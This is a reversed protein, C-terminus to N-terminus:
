LNWAACLVEAIDDTKQTPAKHAQQTHQGPQLSPGQTDHPRVDMLTQVLALGGSSSQDCLHRCARMSEASAM